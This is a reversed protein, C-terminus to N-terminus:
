NLHSSEGNLANGNGPELYHAAYFPFLQSLLANMIRQRRVTSVVHGPAEVARGHRVVYVRILVGIQNNLDLLNVRFIYAYPLVTSALTRDVQCLSSDNPFLFRLQSFAEM